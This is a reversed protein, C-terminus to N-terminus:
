LDFLDLVGDTVVGLWSFDGSVECDCFVELAEDIETEAVLIAGGLRSFPIKPFLGFFSFFM